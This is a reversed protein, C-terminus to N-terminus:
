RAYGGQAPLASSEDGLGAQSRADSQLYHHLAAAEADRRALDEAYARLRPDDYVAPLSHGATPELGQSSYGTGTQGAPPSYLPAPLQPGLGAGGASQLSANTERAALGARPIRADSLPDPPLTPPAAGPPPSWLPLDGASGGSSLDPRAMAAAGAGQAVYTGQSGQSMPYTAGDTSLRAALYPDRPSRTYPQADTVSQPGAPMEAPDILGPLRGAAARETREVSAEQKARALQAALDQTAANAASVYSPEPAAPAVAAAQLVTGATPHGFPPALVLQRDARGAPSPALLALKARAEEESGTLRLVAFARDLDGIKGYLMGLNTLAREHTPALAVADRLTREGEPYRGQLVYCYGLDNLVDPDNPRTELAASYHREATAFDRNQDAIVGLRHHAVPHRPDERLVREYFRAAQDLRGAEAERHGRLLNEAIETAPSSGGSAADQQAAVSSSIRNAALAQELEAQASAGPPQLSNRTCGAICACCIGVALCPVAIRRRDQATM